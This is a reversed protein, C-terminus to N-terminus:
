EVEGIGVRAATVRDGEGRDQLTGDVQRETRQYGDRIEMAMLPGPASTSVMSPWPFFPMKESAAPALRVTEPRVKAWPLAVFRPPIKLAPPVSGRLLQVTEPLLAM